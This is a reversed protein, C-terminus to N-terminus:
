RFTEAFGPAEWKVDKRLLFLGEEDVFQVTRDAQVEEVLGDHILIWLNPSHNVIPTERAYDLIKRGAGWQRAALPPGLTQLLEPERMGLRLSRVRDATVGSAIRYPLLQVAVAAAVCLILATSLRKRLFEIPM